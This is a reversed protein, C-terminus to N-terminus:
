CVVFRSRQETSLDRGAGCACHRFAGRSPVRRCGVDTKAEAVEKEVESSEPSVSQRGAVFGQRAVPFPLLFPVMM